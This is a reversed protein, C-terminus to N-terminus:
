KTIEATRRIELEVEAAIGLIRVTYTAADGGSFDLTVTENPTIERLIEMHNKIVFIRLNGSKLTNGITLRIPTDGSTFENVTLLGDFRGSSFRVFDSAAFDRKGKGEATTISKKQAAFDNKHSCVSADTISSYFNSYKTDIYITRIRNVAFLLILIAFGAALVSTLIKKLTKVYSKEM